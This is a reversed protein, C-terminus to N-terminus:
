VMSFLDYLANRMHKLWKFTSDHPRASDIFVFQELFCLLCPHVGESQRADQRDHAQLLAAHCIQPLQQDRVAWCAGGAAPQASRRARIRARESVAAPGAAGDGSSNLNSIRKLKM